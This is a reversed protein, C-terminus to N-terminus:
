PMPPLADVIKLQEIPVLYKQYRRSNSYRGGSDEVLVTVRKTVRNVRGTLTRGEFVFQVNAGVRLGAVAAREQRTILQHTHTRHLFHRAAIDQFRGRACDSNQWCMQETLHVLEHEFIRQLADLRNACARGCVSIERDNEAFGDFLLGCAITIEYRVGGSPSTFRTTRGAAKTMRTSLRFRLQDPNITGRCLGRFFRDDYAEFLVRLDRCHISTFNEERLFPSRKLVEDRIASLHELIESNSLRFARITESLSSTPSCSTMPGLEQQLM